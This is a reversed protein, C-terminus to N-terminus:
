GLALRGASDPGPREAAATAILDLLAAGLLFPDDNVGSGLGLMGRLPARYAPAVEDVFQRLGRVITLVAALSLGSESDVCGASVWRFRDGRSQAWEALATKGSGPEGEVWVRVAEGSQSWTWPRSLLRASLDRGM